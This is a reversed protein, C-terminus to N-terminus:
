NSISDGFLLLYYIRLDNYFDGVLFNDVSLTTGKSDQFELEHRFIQDDDKAQLNEYESKLRM